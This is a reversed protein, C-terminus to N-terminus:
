CVDGDSGPSGTRVTWKAVKIEAPAGAPRASSPKLGTRVARAAIALYSNYSNSGWHSGKDEGDEEGKGNWRKDHEPAM